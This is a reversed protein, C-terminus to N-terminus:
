GLAEYNKYKTIGTKVPIKNIKTIIYKKLPTDNQAFHLSTSFDINKLNRWFTSIVYWNVKFLDKFFM